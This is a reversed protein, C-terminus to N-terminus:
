HCPVNQGGNKQKSPLCRVTFAQAVILYDYHNM